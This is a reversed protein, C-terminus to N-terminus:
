YRKPSQTTTFSTATTKSPQSIPTALSRGGDQKHSTAPRCYRPSSCALPPVLWIVAIAILAIHVPAKALIRLVRAAISEHPETVIPAPAPISATEM